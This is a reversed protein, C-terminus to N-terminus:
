VRDDGPCSPGLVLSDLRLAFERCERAGARARLASLRCADARDPQETGIRDLADAVLEETVTLAIAVRRLRNALVSAHDLLRLTEGDSREGPHPTAM